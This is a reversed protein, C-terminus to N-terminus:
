LPFFLIHSSINKFFFLRCAFPHILLDTCVEGMGMFVVNSLRKSKGHTIKTSDNQPNSDNTNAFSTSESSSSSSSLLLLAHFTAVQEFIEAASLQRTYGMQGTACFVCAQACGVQSSICATYRGDRYPGMLVSEILSQDQQLEYVRKLTGDVSSIQEQVLKLSSATCLEQLQQRLPKPLLIMQSIDTIGQHRIYHYMQQGRYKPVKLSLMLAELESLTVTSLNLQYPAQPPTPSTVKSSKSSEKGNTFSSSSSSSSSRSASLMFSRYQHLPAQISQTSSTTPSSIHRRWSIYSRLSQQLQHQTPPSSSSSSQRHFRHHHHHHHHYHHYHNWRSTKTYSRITYSQVFRSGITKTTAKMVVQVTTWTSESYYIPFMMRSTTMFLLLLLLSVIVIVIVSVSHPFYNLTNKWHRRRHLGISSQGKM